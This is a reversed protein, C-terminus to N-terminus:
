SGGGPSFGAFRGDAVLIEDLIGESDFYYLQRGVLQDALRAVVGEADNTITRHRDWPGLDRITLVLGTTLNQVVEFNAPRM